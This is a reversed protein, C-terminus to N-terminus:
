CINLFLFQKPWCLGVSVESVENLAYMDSWKGLKLNQEFNTLEYNPEYVANNWTFFFVSIIRNLLTGVSCAQVMITGVSCAWLICTGVPCTWHIHDIRNLRKVLWFGHNWISRTSLCGNWIFSVLGVNECKWMKVNECNWLKM